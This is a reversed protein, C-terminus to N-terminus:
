GLMLRQSAKPHTRMEIKVDSPLEDILIGECLYWHVLTLRATCYMDCLLAIILLLQYSWELQYDKM